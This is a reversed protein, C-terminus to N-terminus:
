RSVGTTVVALSRTAPIGLGYMVESLCPAVVRIKDFFRRDPDFLGVFPLM